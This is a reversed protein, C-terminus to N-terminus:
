GVMPGPPSETLRHGADPAPWRPLRLAIPLTTAGTPGGSPRGSRRAAASTVRAM